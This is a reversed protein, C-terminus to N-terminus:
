NQTQKRVPPERSRINEPGLRQARRIVVNLARHLVVRRAVHREIQRVAQESVSASALRASLKAPNQPFVRLHSACSRTKIQFKNVRKNRRAPFPGINKKKYDIRHSRIIKPSVIRLCRERRVQVRQCAVAHYNSVDPSRIGPSRKGFWRNPCPSQQQVSMEHLGEFAQVAKFFQCFRVAVLHHHTVVFYQTLYKRRRVVEYFQVGVLFQPVLQFNTRRYLLGLASEVMPRVRCPWNEKIRLRLVYVLKGSVIQWLPFSRVPGGLRPEVVANREFQM